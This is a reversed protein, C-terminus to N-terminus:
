GWDSIDKRMTKKFSQKKKSELRKVKSSKTPRTAKRKKPIRLANTVLQQLKALARDRNQAQSRGEEATIVLEDSITLRHALKKRAREKEEATLVSSVGLHWHVVVKTSVKNVNQGGKGSSRAFQIRLEHQPILVM